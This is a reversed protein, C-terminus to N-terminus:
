NEWPVVMDPINIWGDKATSRQSDHQMVKEVVSRLQGPLNQMVQQLQIRAERAKWMWAALSQSAKELMEGYGAESKGILSSVAKALNAVQTTVTALGEAGPVLAEQLKANANQVATQAQRLQIDSQAQAVQMGTNVAPTITDRIMPVAGMPTSAGGLRASLIPNLGAAKLDAVERQHATNSMREQFAANVGVAHESASNAREGGIFSAGASILAATTFPDM